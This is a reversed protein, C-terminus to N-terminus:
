ATFDSKLAFAYSYDVIAHAEQNDIWAKENHNIAVIQKTTKGKFMNIVSELTELETATFENQISNAEETFFYQEGTYGNAFEQQQAQIYGNEVTYALLMEYNTPVTGHQIARYELGMLAIGHKRYHLFDAYFLLKNLGTKWPKLKEVLYCIVQITKEITPQKYGNTATPSEINGLLYDSLLDAFSIQKEQEILTDIRKLIKAQENANFANSLLVLKKFEASDQALQILRANSQNPVEGSEYQRYVNVGFGLVEAMKTASIQYKERIAQIQAPFPLKYKERYQNYLQQMTLEDTETTTFQQGEDEYYHYVVEFEDKRFNLKEIRSQVELIKGSFPSEITKM